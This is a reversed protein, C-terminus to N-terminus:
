ISSALFLGLYWDLITKGVFFAILLGIALYPGFAIYIGKERKKSIILIAEIILGITSGIMLGILAIPWGLFFGTAAMLKIDGGGMVEKKYVKAGIIAILLFVTGWILAGLISNIFDNYGLIIMTIGLLIIVIHASDPIIFHRLDVFFVLLLISCFLMSVIQNDFKDKFLLYSVVWLIGNVLPIIFEEIPIEKKCCKYTGMSLIYGFIPINIYWAKKTYCNPCKSSIEFVSIENPIRYVFFNIIMGFFIGSVLYIYIM